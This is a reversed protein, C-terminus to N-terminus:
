DRLSEPQYDPLIAKRRDGICVTTQHLGHVIYVLSRYLTIPDDAGGVTSQMTCQRTPTGPTDLLTLPAAQM